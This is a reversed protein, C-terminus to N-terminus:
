SVRHVVLSGVSIPALTLGEQLALRSAVEYRELYANIKKLYIKGGLSLGQSFELDKENAAPGRDRVASSEIIGYEEVKTM